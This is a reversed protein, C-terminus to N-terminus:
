ALGGYYIRRMVEKPSSIDLMQDKQRQGLFCSVEGLNKIEFRVSLNNKLTSIEAEDNSTIIMDDVYLLVLLHMDSEINIFLSSYSTSVHVKNTVNSLKLVACQQHAVNRRKSGQIPIDSRGEWETLLLDVYMISRLDGNSVTTMKAVPSFMEKYYGYNQSFGRAVLRAKYRDTMGDSKEEYDKLYTPQRRERASRREVQNENVNSINSTPYSENSPAQEDYEPLLQLSEVNKNSINEQIANEHSSYYSSAEDFVVDRSTVFNKIEPDMCMWGKRAMPLTNIAHCAYKMAEAWLEQSLDKGHLWSLSVSM